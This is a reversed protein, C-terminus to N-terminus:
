PLFHCRYSFAHVFVSLTVFSGVKSYYVRRKFQKAKRRQSGIPDVERLAQM